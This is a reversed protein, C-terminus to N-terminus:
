SRVSLQLRKEHKNCVWVYGGVYHKNSILNMFEDCLSCNMRNELLGLKVLFQLM